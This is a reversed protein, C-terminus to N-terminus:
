IFPFGYPVGTFPVPLYFACIIFILSTPVPPLPGHEGGFTLTMTHYRKGPFHLKGGGGKKKSGGGRVDSCIPCVVGGGIETDRTIGQKTNQTTEVDQFAGGLKREVGTHAEVVGLIRVPCAAVPAVVHGHTCSM